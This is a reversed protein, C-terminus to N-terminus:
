EEGGLDLDYQGGQIRLMRIEDATTEIKKLLEDHKEILKKFKDFKKDLKDKILGSKILRASNVADNFARIPNMRSERLNKIFAMLEEETMELITKRKICEDVM